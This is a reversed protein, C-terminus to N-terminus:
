GLVNRKASSHRIRWTSATFVLAHVYVIHSSIQGAEDGYPTFLYKAELKAKHILFHHRDGTLVYEAEMSPQILKQVVCCGCWQLPVDPSLLFLFFRGRDLDYATVAIPM